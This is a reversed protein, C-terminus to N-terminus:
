FPTEKNGSNNKIPVTMQGKQEKTESHKNAPVPLPALPKQQLIELASYFPARDRHILHCISLLFITVSRRLSGVYKHQSRSFLIPSVPVVLGVTYYQFM